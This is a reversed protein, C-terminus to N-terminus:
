LTGATIERGNLTRGRSLRIVLNIESQIDIM